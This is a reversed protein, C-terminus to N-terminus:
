KNQIYDFDKNENARLKKEDVFSWEWNSQSTIKTSDPQCTIVYYLTKNKRRIINNCNEYYKTIHICNFKQFLNSM